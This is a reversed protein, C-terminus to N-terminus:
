RRYSSETIIKTLDEIIRGILVIEQANVVNVADDGELDKKLTRLYDIYRLIEDVEIM